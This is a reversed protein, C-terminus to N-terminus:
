FTKRYKEIYNNNVKKEKDIDLYEQLTLMLEM